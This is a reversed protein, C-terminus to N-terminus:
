PLFRSEVIEYSEVYSEGKIERLLKAEASGGADVAWRVSSWSCGDSKKRITAIAYSGGSPVTDLWAFAGSATIETRLRQRESDVTDTTASTVTYNERYNFGAGCATKRGEASIIIVTPSAATSRSIGTSNSAPRQTSDVSAVKTNGPPLSTSDAGPGTTATGSPSDSRATVRNAAAQRAAEVRAEAERTRSQIAAATQSAEMQRRSAAADAAREQQARNRAKEQEYRDMVAQNAERSEEMEVAANAFKQQVDGIAALIAQRGEEESARQEARQRAAERAYEQARENAERSAREEAARVRDKAAQREAVLARAKLDKVELQAQYIADVRRGRRFECPELGLSMLSALSDDFPIRQQSCYGSGNPLTGLFEDSYFFVTGLRTEVSAEVVGSPTLTPALTFSNASIVTNSSYDLFQDFYQDSSWWLLMQKGDPSYIPTAAVGDDGPPLCGPWWVIWGPPMPEPELCGWTQNSQRSLIAKDESTIPMLDWRREPKLLLLPDVNYGVPKLLRDSKSLSKTRASFPYFAYLGRPLPHNEIDDLEVQLQIPSFYVKEDTVSAVTGVFYGSGLKTLVGRKGPEPRGAAVTQTLRNGDPFHFTVEGRGREDGGTTFYSGAKEQRAVVEVFNDSFLGPLGSASAKYRSIVWPYLEGAKLHTIGLGARIPLVEQRGGGGVSAVDGIWMSGDSYNIIGAGSPYCGISKGRYRIPVAKQGVVEVNSYEVAVNQEIGKKCDKPMSIGGFFGSEFFGRDAVFRADPLWTTSTIQDHIAQLPAYDRHAPARVEAGAGAGAGALISGYDALGPTSDAMAPIFLPQALLLLTSVGIRVSSRKTKFGM